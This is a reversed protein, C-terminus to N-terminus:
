WVSRVIDDSNGTDPAEGDSSLYEKRITEVGEMNIHSPETNDKLSPHGGFEGSKILAMYNVSLFKEENALRRLLM